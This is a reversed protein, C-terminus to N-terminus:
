AFDLPAPVLFVPEPEVLVDCREIVAAVFTPRGVEFGGKGAM